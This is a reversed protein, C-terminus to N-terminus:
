EDDADSEEAEERESTHEWIETCGCGDEVSDLHSTDVDDYRDARSEEDTKSM